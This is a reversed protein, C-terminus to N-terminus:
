RDMKFLRLHKDLFYPFQDIGIMYGRRKKGKLDCFRGVYIVTFSNILDNAAKFLMM